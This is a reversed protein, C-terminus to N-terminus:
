FRYAVTASGGLSHVGAFARMYFLEFGMTSRRLQYHANIGLAFRDSYPLSIPISTSGLSITSEQKTNYLHPEYDVRATLIGIGRFAAFAVGSQAGFSINIMYDTYAQLTTQITSEQTSASHQTLLYQRVSAYPKFFATGMFFRYGLAIEGMFRSALFSSSSDLRAGSIAISNQAEFAGLSGLLGLDLELSRWAITDSLSLGFAYSTNKTSTSALNQGLTNYLFSGSLRLNHGFIQTSAGAELGMLGGAGYKGFVGGGLARMDLAVRRQPAYAYSPMALLANQYPVYVKPVAHPVQRTLSSSNYALRTHAQTANLKALTHPALPTATIHLAQLSELTALPMTQQAVLLGQTDSVLVSLSEKGGYTYISGMDAREFVSDLAQLIPADAGLTNHFARIADEKRTINLATNSDILAVTLFDHQAQALSLTGQNTSTGQIFTHKGLTLGKFDVLIAGDNTIDGKIQGLKGNYAGFIITSTQKNQIGKQAELVSGYLKISSDKPKLLDGGIIFVGGQQSILEGSVSMTSGYLIIDGGGGFAPDFPNLGSSGGSSDVGKDTQGGNYFNGDIIITGNHSVFQATTTYDNPILGRTNGVNYINGKLTLTGGNNQLKHQFRIAKDAEISLSAGNEVLMEGDHIFFQLQTFSAQSNQALFLKSHEGFRVKSAGGYESAQPNILPKDSLTVYLNSNSDLILSNGNDFSLTHYGILEVKAENTLRLGVNQFHTTKDNASLTYTANSAGKVSFSQAHFFTQEGNGAQSLTTDKKSANPTLTILAPMTYSAITDACVSVACLCLIAFARM